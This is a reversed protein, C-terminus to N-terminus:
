LADDEAEPGKTAAPVGLIAGEPQAPLWGRMAPAAGACSVSLERVPLLSERRRGPYGAAEVTTEGLM